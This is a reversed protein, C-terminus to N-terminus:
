FFFPKFRKFYMVDFYSFSLSLKKNKTFYYKVYPDQQTKIFHM